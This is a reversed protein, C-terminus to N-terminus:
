SSMTEKVSYKNTSASNVLNAPIAKPITFYFISGQGPTSELWIKGGNIEVCKQVISLGIRSSGSIEWRENDYISFEWFKPREVYNIEILGNPKDMYKISNNILHHFIQKMRNQECKIIPLEKKIEVRINEPLNINTLVNRILDNINITDIKDESSILRTYTLLGDILSHMRQTRSEIQELKLLAAETLESSHDSKLWAALTSIGRLPSKMDHTMVYAFRTLEENNKMVQELLSEQKRESEKRQTVDRVYEVVGNPKGSADLMPFAFVEMDCSVGDEQTLQCEEMELEGTELARISPCRECKSDRKRYVQYCKKGKLPTIHNFKNEMAANAIIIDLDPSLVTIGDQISELIGSLFKERELVSQEAQKRVEVEQRLKQNVERLENSSLDLSREILNRDKEFGEYAENISDFLPIFEKPINEINGLYKQIQRKLLPNM